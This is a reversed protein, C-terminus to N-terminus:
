RGSAPTLARGQWVLYWLRLATVVAMIEWREGLEGRAASGMYEFKLAKTMTMSMTNLAWVAVVERGDSTVGPPRAKQKEKQKGSQSSGAISSSGDGAGGADSSGDEIRNALRM